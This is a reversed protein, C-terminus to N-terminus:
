TLPPPAESAGEGELRRVERPSVALEKAISDYSLTTGSNLGFRLDIVKRESMTLSGLVDDVANTLGCTEVHPEADFVALLLGVYGPMRVTRKLDPLQGKRGLRRIERSEWDWEIDVLGRKELSCWARELQYVSPIKEIPVDMLKLLDPGWGEVLIKRQFDLYNGIVGGEHELLRLCSKQLRGLHGKM